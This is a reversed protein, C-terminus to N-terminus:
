GRLYQRWRQLVFREFDAYVIGRRTPYQHELEWVKQDRMAYTSIRYAGVPREQVVFSVGVGRVQWPTPSRRRVPRELDLHFNIDPRFDSIRTGADEHYVYALHPSFRYNKGIRRAILPDQKSAEVISALYDLYRQAVQFASAGGGLILPPYPRKNDRIEALVKSLGRLAPHPIRIPLDMHLSEMHALFWSVIHRELPSPASRLVACAAQYIESWYRMRWTSERLAADRWRILAIRRVGQGGLEPTCRLLRDYKRLQERTLPADIKSEIVALVRGTGRDRILLDLQGDHGATAVQTVAAYGTAPPLGLLRGMAQGFGPVHNITAAFVQTLRNESRAGYGGAIAEALFDM